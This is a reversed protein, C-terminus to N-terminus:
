DTNTAGAGGKFVTIGAEMERRAVRMASEIRELALGLRKRAELVDPQTLTIRELSSIASNIKERDDVLRDFSLTTKSMEYDRWFSLREV